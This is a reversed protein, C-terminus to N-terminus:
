RLRRRADLALGTGVSGFLDGTVIPIGPLIDAVCARLIPLSSSGGTLFVTRVEPKISFIGIVFLLGLFPGLVTLLQRFGLRNM